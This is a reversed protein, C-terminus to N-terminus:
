AVKVEPLHVGVGVHNGPDGVVQAGPLGAVLGGLGGAPVRLEPGGGAPVDRGHDVRRAVRLRAELGRAAVRGVRLLPEVPSRLHLAGPPVVVERPQALAGPRLAVLRAAEAGGGELRHAVGRPGIDMVASRSSTRVTATRRTEARTETRGPLPARASSGGSRSQLPMPALRSASWGSTSASSGSRPKTRNSTGPTPPLGNGGTGYGIAASDDHVAAM